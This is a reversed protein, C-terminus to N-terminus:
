RTYLIMLRLCQAWYAWGRGPRIRAANPLFGRQMPDRSIQHDGVMLALSWSQNKWLSTSKFCTKDHSRLLVLNFFWMPSAIGCLTLMGLEIFWYKDAPISFSRHTTGRPHHDGRRGWFTWCERTRRFKMSIIRADSWIRLWKSCLWKVSFDLSVKM